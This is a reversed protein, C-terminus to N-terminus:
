SAKLALSHPLCTGKVDKPKRVFGCPKVLEREVGVRSMAKLM